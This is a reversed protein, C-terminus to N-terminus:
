SVPADTSFNTKVSRILQRVHDGSRHLESIESKELKYNIIKGIGDKNIIVPLSIVTDKVDYINEVLFGVPLVSHENMEIARIIRYVSAAIGHNTNGKREFIEYGVNLVNNLMLKRDIPPLNNTICYEELDIGCINCISWPIFSTSGHEGLVYGFVNKPDMDAHGALITMFRASDLLTGSSIVKKPDYGSNQLVFWTCVDVPNTVIIVIGDPSYKYVERAIESVINSNIQVLEDRPQGQKIQAGATIVIIDSGTTDAYEGAILKINKTHTFASMHHFDMIEGEARKRDIDILVIERATGMIFLYSCIETGVMGAGVITIKM